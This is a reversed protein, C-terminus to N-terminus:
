TCFTFILGLVAAFSRTFISSSGPVFTNIGNKPERSHAEGGHEWYDTCPVEHGVEWWHSPEDCHHMVAHEDLLRNNIGSIPHKLAWVKYKCLLWQEIEGDLGAVTLTERHRGKLHNLAASTSGSYSLELECLKSNAVKENWKIAMCSQRKGTKSEAM